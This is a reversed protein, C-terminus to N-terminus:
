SLRSRLAVLGRALHKEVGKVSIGLAEAIEAYSLEDRWRLRMVEAQRQPLAAFAASLEDNLIRADLIADPQPPPAHLARADDDSEDTEWDEVVDDHKLINLARNRVAAYLYARLSTRVALTRRSSWLAAFVDQVVDEAMAADRVFRFAFTGLPAYYARFVREFAEDDGQQLLRITDPPLVVPRPPVSWIYPKAGRM